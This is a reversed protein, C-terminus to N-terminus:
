PPGCKAVSRCRAIVRTANALFVQPTTLFPQRSTKPAILFTFRGFGHKRSFKGTSADDGTSVIVPPVRTTPLVKELEGAVEECSECSPNVVVVMKLGQPFAATACSSCPALQESTFADGRQFSRTVSAITRTEARLAKLEARLRLNWVLLFVFGIVVAAELIRM